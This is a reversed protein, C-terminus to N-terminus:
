VNKVNRRDWITLMIQSLNNNQIFPHDCQQRLHSSLMWQITEIAFRLYPLLSVSIHHIAMRSIKDIKANM